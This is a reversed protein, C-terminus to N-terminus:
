CCCPVARGCRRSLPPRATRSPLATRCPRSAVRGTTRAYGDAMSVAGGEAVAAVFEGDRNEAFDGLYALNADGMLGFVTGVGFESLARAALQYTKM